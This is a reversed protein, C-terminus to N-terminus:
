GGTATAHTKSRSGTVRPKETVKCPSDKRMCVIGDMPVIQEFLLPGDRRSSRPLPNAVTETEPTEEVSGQPRNALRCATEDDTEAMNGTVRQL